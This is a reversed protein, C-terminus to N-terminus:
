APQEAHTGQLAALAEYHQREEPSLTTPVQLDVVVLLDGRTDPKGVAPM